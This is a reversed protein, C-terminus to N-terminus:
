RTMPKMKKEKKDEAQDYEAALDKWITATMNQKPKEQSQIEKRTKREDNQTKSVASKEKSKEQCRSVM